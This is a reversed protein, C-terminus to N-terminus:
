TQKKDIIRHAGREVQHTVSGIDAEKEEKSTAVPLNGFYAVKEYSGLM